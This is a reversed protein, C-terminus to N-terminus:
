RLFFLLLSKILRKSYQIQQFQKEQAQIKKKKTLKNIKM